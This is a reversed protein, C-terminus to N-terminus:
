FERIHDYSFVPSGGDGAFSSRRTNRTFHSLFKPNKFPRAVTFAKKVLTPPALTKFYVVLGRLPMIALEDSEVLGGM